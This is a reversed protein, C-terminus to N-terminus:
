PPFEMGANPANGARGVTSADLAAAAAGKVPKPPNVLLALGALSVALALIRGANPPNAGLGTSSFFVSAGAAAASAFGNVNPLAAAGVVVGAKTGDAVEAALKAKPALM